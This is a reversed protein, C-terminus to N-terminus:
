RSPRLWNWDKAYVGEVLLWKLRLFVVVGRLTKQIRILGM